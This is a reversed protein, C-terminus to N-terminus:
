EHVFYFICQRFQLNCMQPESLYLNQGFKWCVHNAYPFVFVFDFIGVRNHNWDANRSRNGIFRFLKLRTKRDNLSIFEFKQLSKYELIFIYISIKPIAPIQWANPCKFANLYCFVHSISYRVLLPNWSWFFFFSFNIIWQYPYRPM